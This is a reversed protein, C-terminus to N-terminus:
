SQMQRRDSRSERFSGSAFAKITHPASGGEFAATAHGARFSATHGPKSMVKGSARLHKTTTNCATGGKALRPFMAPHGPFLADRVRTAVVPCAIDGRQEAIWPSPGRWRTALPDGKHPGPLLRVRNRGLELQARKPGPGKTTPAAVMAPRGAFALAVAAAASVMAENTMLLRTTRPLGTATVQPDDMFMQVFGKGLRSERNARDPIPDARELADFEHRAIATVVNATRGPNHGMTVETMELEVTPTYSAKSAPNTVEQAASPAPTGKGDAISRAQEARGRFRDHLDAAATAFSRDVARLEATQGETLRIDIIVVLLLDAVLVTTILYNTVASMVMKVLALASGQLAREILGKLQIFEDGGVIVVLYGIFCGFAALKLAKQVLKARKSFIFARERVEGPSVYAKTLTMAGYLPVLNASVFFVIGLSVLYHSLLQVVSLLTVSIMPVYLIPVAVFVWGPLAASPMILKSFLAGKAMGPLLSLALPLLAVTAKISLGIRQMLNFFTTSSEEIMQFQDAIKRKSEAIYLTALGQPERNVSESAAVLASQILGLTSTPGVLGGLVGCTYSSQNGGACAGSKARSPFDDRGSLMGAVLAESDIDMLTNWPLVWQVFIVVFPVGWAMATLLSSHRWNHRARHAVFAAGSWWVPPFAKIVQLFTTVARTQPKRMLEAKVMDGDTCCTRRTATADTDPIVAACVENPLVVVGHGATCALVKIQVKTEDDCAGWAGIAPVGLWSSTQTDVPQVDTDAPPPVSSALRRRSLLQSAARTGANAAQVATAGQQLAAQEPVFKVSEDEVAQWELQFTAREDAPKFELSSGPELAVIDNFCLLPESEVCTGGSASCLVARFKRASAALGYSPAAGVGIGAAGGFGGGGPQPAASAAANVTEALASGLMDKVQVAVRMQLAGGSDAANDNTLKLHGTPDVGDDGAASNTCFLNGETPAVSLTVFSIREAEAARKEAESEESEGSTTHNVGSAGALARTARTRARARALGYRYSDLRRTGAGNCCGPGFVSMYVALEGQDEQDLSALPTCAASDLYQGSIISALNACSMGDIPFLSANYVGAAGAAQCVSQGSCVPQSGGASCCAPGFLSLSGVLDNQMQNDLNAAPACAASDFYDRVIVGAFQACTMGSMASTAASFPGPAGAAQCVSPGGCVPGPATVPGGGGSGPPGCCAGGILQSRSAFDQAMQASMNAKPACSDLYRYQFDTAYRNCSDGQMQRTGHFTTNAIGFISCMCCSADAAGDTSKWQRQCLGCTVPCAFAYASDCFGPVAGCVGACPLKYTNPPAEAAVRDANQCLAGDTQGAPISAPARGPAPAPPSCKGCTQPCVAEWLARRDPETNAHCYISGETCDELAVGESASVKRVIEPTSDACVPMKDPCVGCRQPCLDQVRPCWRTANLWALDACGTVQDKGAFADDTRRVIAAFSADDDGCYVFAARKGADTVTWRQAGTIGRANFAVSGVSMYASTAVTASITADDASRPPLAGGIYWRARSAWYFLFAGKGNPGRNSAEYTPRGGVTRDLPNYRGDIALARGVDGQVGGVAVGGACCSAAQAYSSVAGATQTLFRRWRPSYGHWQASAGEFRAQAAAQQQTCGAAVGALMGKFVPYLVELKATFPNQLPDPPVMSRSGVLALEGLRYRYDLGTSTGCLVGGSLAAGPWTFYRGRESSLRVSANYVVAGADELAQTVEAPLSVGAAARWRAQAAAAGAPQRAVLDQRGIVTSVSLLRAEDWRTPLAGAAVDAEAYAFNSRCAEADAFLRTTVAFSRDSAISVDQRTFRAASSCGGESAACVVGGDDIGCYYAGACQSAEPCPSDADRCTTMVCFPHTHRNAATEGACKSPDAVEGCSKRPGGAQGGNCDANQDAGPDQDPFTRYVVPIPQCPADADFTGCMLNSVAGHELIMTNPTRNEPAMISFVRAPSQLTSCTASSNSSYRASAPFNASTRGDVSPLAAGLRRAVPAQAGAPDSDLIQYATNCTAAADHLGQLSRNANVIAIVSAIVAMASALELAHQRYKMYKRLRIGAGSAGDSGNGAGNAADSGQAGPRWRTTNSFVIEDVSQFPVKLTDVVRRHARAFM